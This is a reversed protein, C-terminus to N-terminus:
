PILGPVTLWPRPRAILNKLLCNNLVLGLLMALLALFGARRTQKFCLLFLSIAIWLVGGNGLITYFKLAASAWGSRLCSQVFLLIAADATQLM